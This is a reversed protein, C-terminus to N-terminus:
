MNELKEFAPDTLIDRRPIKFDSELHHRLSSVAKEFDNEFVYARALGLYGSGRVLGNAASFDRIAAGTQGSIMYAEGRGVLLRYDEHKEIGETYFSIAESYLARDTLAKGGTIYDNADQATISTCILLAPLLLICYKLKM